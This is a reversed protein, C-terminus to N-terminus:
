YKKLLDKTQKYKESNPYNSILKEFEKKARNIEGLEIYCLGIKYLAHDAKNSASFNFVKNFESISRKYERLSYYVEGIWYQCNDALKHNKDAAILYKFADLSLNWEANQYQSLADIYRDKFEQDTIQPVMSAENKSSIESIEKFSSVLSEIKNDIMVLENVVEFYLSDTYFTRDELINIKNQIKILSNTIEKEFSNNEITILASQVEKELKKRFEIISNNNSDYIDLVETQDNILGKYQKLESEIDKIKVGQQEVVQEISRIYEINPEPNPGKSANCGILIFLIFYKATNLFFRIYTKM